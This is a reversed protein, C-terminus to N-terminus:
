KTCWKVANMYDENNTVFTAVKVKEGCKTKFSQPVNNENSSPWDDLKWTDSDKDNKGSNHTRYQSWVEKWGADDNDTSTLIKKNPYNDAILDSVLTSRTCYALVEGYLPDDTGSVQKDKNVSCASMFSDSANEANTIDSQPTTWGSLKWKDENLKKGKNAERYTKWAEKWDGDSAQSSTILRKEPNSTKLLESISVKKNEKSKFVDSGFYIIGATTVGGAGLLGLSGKLLISM